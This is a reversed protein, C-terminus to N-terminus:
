VIFPTLIKCNIFDNILTYTKKQEKIPIDKLINTINNKEIFPEITANYQAEEIWGKIQKNYRNIIWFKEKSKIVTFDSNFIFNTETPLSKVKKSIQVINEIEKILHLQIETIFDSFIYCSKERKNEITNQIDEVILREPLMESHRGGIRGQFFSKYQEEINESNILGGYGKEGIIICPKNRAIAYLSTYGSGIIIDSSHVQSEINTNQPIITINSNLVNSLQKNDTQLIIDHSTLQNLIRVIIIGTESLSLEDINIYIRKTNNAKKSFTQNKQKFDFPMFFVKSLKQFPFIIGTNKNEFLFIFDVKNIDLKSYNAALDSTQLCCIIPHKCDKNAKVISNTLHTEYVITCDCDAISRIDESIQCNSKTLINTLQEAFLTQSADLKNKHLFLIRIM